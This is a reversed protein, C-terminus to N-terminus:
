YYRGYLKEHKKHAGHGGRALYQIGIDDLRQPIRLCLFYAGAIFM